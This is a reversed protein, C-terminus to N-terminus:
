KKKSMGGGCMAIVKEHEKQHGAAHKGYVEHAPQHGDGGYLKETMHVNHTHPTTKEKVESTM